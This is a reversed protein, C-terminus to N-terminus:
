EKKEEIEKLKKNILETLEKDHMQALMIVLHDVTEFDERLALRYLANSLCFFVIGYALLTFDEFSSLLLCGASLLLTILGFVRYVQIRDM